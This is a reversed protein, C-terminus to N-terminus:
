SRTLKANAGLEGTRPMLDQTARAILPSRESRVRRKGAEKRGAEMKEVRAFKSCNIKIKPTM